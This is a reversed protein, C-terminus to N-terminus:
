AMYNHQSHQIAVAAGMNENIQCSQFWNCIVCSYLEPRLVINCNFEMWTIAVGKNNYQSPITKILCVM